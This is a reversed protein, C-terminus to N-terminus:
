SKRLFWQGDDSPPTLNSPDRLLGRHHQRSRRAVGRGGGSPAEMFFSRMRTVISTAASVTHVREAV